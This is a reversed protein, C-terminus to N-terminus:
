AGPAIHEIHKVIISEYDAKWNVLMTEDGIKATDDPLTLDLVILGYVNNLALELGKQGTYVGFPSFGRQKFLSSISEVAIRDESIILIETKAIM